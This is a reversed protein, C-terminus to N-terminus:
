TVACNQPGHALDHGLLSDYTSQVFAKAHVPHFAGNCHPDAEGCEVDRVAEQELQMLHAAEDVSHYPLSPPTVSLASSVPMLSATSDPLSSDAPRDQQVTRNGDSLIDSSQILPRSTHKHVCFRLIEFEAFRM